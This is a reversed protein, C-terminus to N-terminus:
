LIKRALRQSPREVFNFSLWSIALCALVSVPLSVSFPVGRSVALTNVFMGIPLHLLYLSLSIDALFSIFRPVAKFGYTMAALFVCVVLAYSAAPAVPGEFFVNKHANTYILIFLVVILSMMPAGKRWGVIGSDALYIARGLLLMAIYPSFYKMRALVPTGAAVLEFVLWCGIMLYTAKEPSRRTPVLFLACLLYFMIEPVLSWTVVIVQREGVIMDLLFLAQAYDKWSIANLGTLAGLHLFRALWQVFAAVLLAAALAPFIRFVRKICFERLSEQMSAYTIIFGSVLFFLVVGLHGGNQYLHLPFAIHENWTQLATWNGGMNALAFWPGLHAWMVILPAIGRLIHIFPFFQRPHDSM